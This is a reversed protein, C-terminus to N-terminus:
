LTPGKRNKHPLSELRGQSHMTVLSSFLYDEPSKVLGAKVPNDHIYRFKDLWDRENRILHDFSEDQWFTGKRCLHSNIQRATFAKIGQLIRALSWGALPKLLLHVHDPMIVYAHLGYREGHGLWLAEEIVSAFAHDELVKGLTKRVRFTVFYTSDALEWHPLKRKYLTVTQLDERTLAKLEPLSIAPQFGAMQPVAGCAQGEAM